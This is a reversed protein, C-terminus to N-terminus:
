HVSTVDPLTSGFSREWAREARRRLQDDSLEILSNFRAQIAVGDVKLGVDDLPQQSLKALALASIQAYSGVGGQRGFELLRLLVLKPQSDGPTMEALYASLERNVRERADETVNRLRAAVDRDMALHPGDVQHQLEHRETMRTIATTLDGGSIALEERLARWSLECARRQVADRAGGSELLSFEIDCSPKEAGAQQLGAVEEEIENKVVLAFPQRDRSFGLIGHGDRAEGLRRVHLTAHERGDVQVRHVSEIRYGAVKFLRSMGDSTPHVSVFADAYYPLGLKRSETNVESVLRAWRLGALDLDRGEVTLAQLAEALEPNVARATTLLQRSAAQMKVMDGASSTRRTTTEWALRAHSWETLREGFLEDAVASAPALTWQVGKVPPRSLVAQPTVLAALALAGVGCTSLLSRYPDRTMRHSIPPKSEATALDSAAAAKVRDIWDHTLVELSTVMLEIIAALVSAIGLIAIISTNGLTLLLSRLVMVCLFGSLGFTPLLPLARPVPHTPRAAFYAALLGMAFPFALLFSYLIHGLVYFVSPLKTMSLLHRGFTVLPIDARGPWLFFLLMSAAAAVLLARGPQRARDTRLLRLGAATAALSLLMLPSRHGVNDPVSIMGWDAAESGLRTWLGAATLAVLVSVARVSPRTTFRRVLLMGLAAVAGSTAALTGAVDLEPLVQWVFVLEDGIVDYPLVVSLLLAISGWFMARDLRQSPSLQVLDPPVSHSSSPLSDHRSHARPDLPNM